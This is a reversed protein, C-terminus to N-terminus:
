ERRHRRKWLLRAALVVGAVMGVVGLGLLVSLFPMDRLVEQLADGEFRRARHFHIGPASAGRDPSRALKAIMLASMASCYAMAVTMAVSSYLPLETRMSFLLHSQLLLGDLLLFLAAAVLPLAPSIVHWLYCAEFTFFLAQYVVVFASLAFAPWSWHATSPKLCGATAIQVADGSAVDREADAYRAGVSCAASRSASAHGSSHRGPHEIVTVLRAALVPDALSQRRQQAEVDFSQHRRRISSTRPGISINNLTTSRRHAYASSGHRHPSTDRQHRTNISNQELQLLLRDVGGPPSAITYGGSSSRSHGAGAQGNSPRAKTKECVDPACPGPGACVLSPDASSGSQSLGHGGDGEIRGWLFDSGGRLQPMLGSRRVESGRGGKSVVTDRSLGLGGRGMSQAMSLPRFIEESRRTGASDTTAVQWPVLEITESSRTEASAASRPPSLSDARLHRDLDATSPSPRKQPTAPASPPLPLTPSRTLGYRSPSHEEVPTASLHSPRYIRIEAPVPKTHASLTRTRTHNQRLPSTTAALPASSTQVGTDPDNQEPQSAGCDTATVAHSSRNTTLPVSAARDSVSTTPALWASDTSCPSVVTEKAASYIVTPRQARDPHALDLQVLPVSCSRSLRRPEQGCDSEANRSAGALLLQKPTFGASGGEGGAESRRSSAWSMRGAAVGEHMAPAPSGMRGAGAVEGRTSGDSVRYRDFLSAAAGVADAELIPELVGSGPRVTAATHPRSEEAADRVASWVHSQALPSRITSDRSVSGSGPRSRALPSAPWTGSSDPHSNLYTSIFSWDAIALGSPTSPQSPSSAAPSRRSASAPSFPDRFLSDTFHPPSLMPSRPSQVSRRYVAQPTYPSGSRPRDMAARGERAAGGVSKSRPDTVADLSWRRASGPSDENAARLGSLAMPWSSVMARGSNRAPVGCRRFGRGNAGFAPVERRSWATSGHGHESASAPTRQGDSHAASWSPSRRYTVSSPRSISAIDANRALGLVSQARRFCFAQRKLSFM